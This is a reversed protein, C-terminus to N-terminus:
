ILFVTETVLLQCTLKEGTTYDREERMRCLGDLLATRLDSGCHLVLDMSLLPTSAQTGAVTFLKHANVRTSLSVLQDLDSYMTESQCTRPHGYTWRLAQFLKSAECDGGLSAELQTVVAQLAPSLSCCSVLLPRATFHTM